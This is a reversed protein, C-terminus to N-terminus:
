PNLHRYLIEGLPMFGKFNKIESCDTMGKKRQCEIFKWIEAIVVFGTNGDRVDLDHLPRMKVCLTQQRTLPLWCSNGRSSSPLKTLRIGPSADCM